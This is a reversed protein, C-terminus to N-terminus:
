PQLPMDILSYSWHLTQICFDWLVRLWTPGGLPYIRACVVDLCRVTDLCCRNHKHKPTDTLTIPHTHTYSHTYKILSFCHKQSASADSLHELRSSSTLLHLTHLVKRTGYAKKQMGLQSVSVLPTATYRWRNTTWVNPPGPNFKQHLAM